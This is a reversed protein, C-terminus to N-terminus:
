ANWADQGDSWLPDFTTMGVGGSPGVTAFICTDGPAPQMTITTVTSKNWLGFFTGPSSAASPLVWTVAALSETAPLVYIGYQNTMQLVATGLPVLFVSFQIGANLTSMQGNFVRGAPAGKAITDGFSM